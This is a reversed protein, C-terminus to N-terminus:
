DTHIKLRKFEQGLISTYTETQYAFFQVNKSNLPIEAKKQLANSIYKWTRNNRFVKPLFTASNGKDNKVIVGYNINNFKTKKSEIIGDKIEELPYKMWSIEYEAFPDLLINKFKERRSDKFTAKIGSNIMQKLLTTKSVIGKEEWYGICGHVDNHSKSDSKKITIFVGFIQDPIIQIATKELTKDYPLDFINSILVTFIDEM